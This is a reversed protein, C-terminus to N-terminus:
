RQGEWPIAEECIFGSMLASGRQLTAHGSEVLYAVATFLMIEAQQERTTPIGFLDALLPYTQADESFFNSPYQAIVGSAVPKARQQDAALNAVLAQPRLPSRLADFTAAVLPLGCRQCVAGRDDTYRKCAACIVM